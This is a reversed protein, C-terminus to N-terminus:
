QRRGARDTMGDRMAESHLGVGLSDLDGALAVSALSDCATIRRIVRSHQYMYINAPFVAILLAILGWAALRTTQPIVLLVGLVIEFVGSAFVLEALFRFIPRCSRSSSAPRSLTAWAGRGPLADRFRM